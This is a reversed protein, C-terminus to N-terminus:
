RAPPVTSGDECACHPEVRPPSYVLEGCTCWYIVHGSRNSDAVTQCAQSGVLDVDLKHGGPCRVPRPLVWGDPTEVLDPTSYVRGRAEYWQRM